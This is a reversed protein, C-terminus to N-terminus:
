KTRFYVLCQYGKTFNYRESISPTIKFTQNRNILKKWDKRYINTQNEGDFMYDKKNLTLLACIHHRDIDRIGVSELSYEMNGIKYKKKKKFDSVQAYRNKGPLKGNATTKLGKDDDTKDIIEIIIIHPSNKVVHNYVQNGPTELGKFSEYGRISFNRLGFGSANYNNDFYNTIALFMSIPNGADGPKSIKNWGLMKTGSYRKGIKRYIESIVDNTNMDSWFAVPDNTGILAATIMKNLLWFPYRLGDPIKSKSGHPTIFLGTIMAERFAKFFKRGKDTIYFIMFFTNFWCNSRNQYPARINEAILPKKSKLNDLLYQQAKKTKWGFCKEKEPVFIQNENCAISFLEDHPSISLRDLEKNISPSYSRLRSITPNDKLEKIMKKTIKITKKKTPKKITKKTTKKIEPNKCRGTEPNCIKAKKLCERKKEQSCKVKKTKKNAPKKKVTIKKVKKKNIKKITVKKVTKNKITRKLAKKKTKMKGFKKETVKKFLNITSKKWLEKKYPVLKGNPLLEIRTKTGNINTFIKDDINLQKTKRPM